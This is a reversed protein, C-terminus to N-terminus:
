KCTELSAPKPDNSTLNAHNIKKTDGTMEIDMDEAVWELLEKEDDEFDAPVFNLDMANDPDIGITAEDLEGEYSLSEGVTRRMTLLAFISPNRMTRRRLTMPPPYIM